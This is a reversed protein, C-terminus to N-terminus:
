FRVDKEGKWNHLNAHSLILRGQIRGGEVASTSSSEITGTCIRSRLQPDTHSSLTPFAPGPGFRRAFLWSAKRWSMGMGDGRGRLDFRHHRHVEGRSDHFRRQIGFLLTLEVWEFVHQIARLILDGAPTRHSALVGLLFPIPFIATAM